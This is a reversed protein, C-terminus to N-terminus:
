VKEYLALVDMVVPHRVVESVGFKVMQISDLGQAADIREMLDILGSKIAGCDHQDPDGTIVLKSGAGIRTMMMLMQSVTSFQAEDLIIWSDEFTMGRMCALPSAEICGSKVLNQIEAKNFHNELHDFIPMQGVSGPIFGHDENLTVAPRTIILKKVLGLKLKQVGVDVAGKTKATGAAGAAVVVYPKEAWLLSKYLKQNNTLLTAM